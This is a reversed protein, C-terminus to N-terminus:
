FNFQHKSHHKVSLFYFLILSMITNYASLPISLFAWSVNSCSTKKDLIKHFDEINNVTPIACTDPIFGMQILFHVFALISNSILCVLTLLKAIGHISPIISLPTFFLMLIFPIRQLECLFCPTSKWLYEQMFSLTLAMCSFFWCILLIRDFTTNAKEYLPQIRM